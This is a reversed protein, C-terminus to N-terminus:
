AAELATELKGIMDLHRAGIKLVAKQVDIQRAVDGLLHLRAADGDSRHLIRLLDLGLGVLAIGPFTAAPKGDPIAYFCYSLASKRNSSFHLRELDGADMRVCLPRDLSYISCRLLGFVANRTETRHEFGSFHENLM